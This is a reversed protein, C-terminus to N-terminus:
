DRLAWVVVAAMFGVVFVLVLITGIGLGGEQVEATETKTQTSTGTQSEGQQGGPDSNQPPPPPPPPPRSNIECNDGTWGPNCDCTGDPQCFGRGSCPQVFNESRCSEGGFCQVRLLNNEIKVDGRVFQTTIKADCLAVNKCTGKARETESYPVHYIGHEADRCPKYTCHPHWGSDVAPSDGGYEALRTAWVGRTLYRSLIHNFYDRDDLPFMRVAESRELMGCAEESINSPIPPLPFTGAAVAANFEERVRGQAAVKDRCARVVDELKPVHDRKLCDCEALYFDKWAGPTGEYFDCVAQGHLRAGQDTPCDSAADATREAHCQKDMDLARSTLNVCPRDTKLKTMYLIPAFEDKNAFAEIRSRDRELAFCGHLSPLGPPFPQAYSPAAM